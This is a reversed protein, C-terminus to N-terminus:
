NAVENCGEQRFLLSTCLLHLLQGLEMLDMSSIAADLLAESLRGKLEALPCQHLLV